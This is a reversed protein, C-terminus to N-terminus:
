PLSRRIGDIAAEIARKYDEECLRIAAELVSLIDAESADIGYLQRALQVGLAALARKDLPRPLALAAAYQGVLNRFSLEASALTMWDTLHYRYVLVRSLLERDLPSRLLNAEMLKVALNRDDQKLLVDVATEIAFHMFEINTHTGTSELIEYLEKAKEAVYWKHAYSDAGYAENHSWWGLAFCTQAAGWAYPRLNIYVYHTDDFATSWKDAAAYQSLDPAISGYRLNIKDACTPFVNEAIYVHAAPNFAFSSSAVLMVVLVPICTSLKRNKM